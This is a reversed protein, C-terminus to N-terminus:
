TVFELALVMDFIVGLPLTVCVQAVTPLVGVAM